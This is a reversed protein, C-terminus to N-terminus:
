NLTLFMNRLVITDLKFNLDFVRPIVHSQKIRANQSIFNLGM